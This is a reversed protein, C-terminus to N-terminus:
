SFFSSFVSVLGISSSSEASFSTQPYKLFIESFIEQALFLFQGSICEGFVKTVSNRIQSEVSQLYNVFWSIM